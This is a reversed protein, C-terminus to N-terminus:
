ATHLVKGAWDHSFFMAVVIIRYNCRCLTLNRNESDIVKKIGKHDGKKHLLENSIKFDLLQVVTVPDHDVAGCRSVVTMHESALNQQWESFRYLPVSDENYKIQTTSQRLKHKEHRM